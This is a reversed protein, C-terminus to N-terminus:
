KSENLFLLLDKRVWKIMATLAPLREAHHTKAESYHVLLGRVLNFKLYRFAEARDSPAVRAWAVQLFQQAYEARDHIAWLHLAFNAHDFYKLQPSLGELDFIYLIGEPAVWFMNQPQLDGIALVYEHLSEGEQALYKLLELGYPMDAPLRCVFQFIIGRITRRRNREFQTVIQKNAAVADIAECVRTFYEHCEEKPVNFDKFEKSENSVPLQDFYEFFHFVAGDYVEEHMPSLFRVKPSASTLLKSLEANMHTSLTSDVLNVKCFYKKANKTVIFHVFRTQNKGHVSSSAVHYGKQELFRQLKERM